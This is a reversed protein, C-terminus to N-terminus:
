YDSDVVEPSYVLERKMKERYEKCVPFNSLCVEFYFIADKNEKKKCNDIHPCVM